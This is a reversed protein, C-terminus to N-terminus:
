ISHKSTGQAIQAAAATYRQLARQKAAPRPSIALLRAARIAAGDADGEEPAHGRIVLFLDPRVRGGLYGAALGLLLGLVMALLVAPIAVGMAIRAGVVIRGLLDRGLHDTGFWHDSSPGELRRDIAQASPDAVLMPGITVAVVLLGIIVLAALGTPKRAIDSLVEVATALRRRNPPSGPATM